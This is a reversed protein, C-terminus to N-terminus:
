FFPVVEVKRGAEVAIDEGKAWTQDNLLLKFVVKGSAQATSWVWKTPEICKLPVGQFWSLGDGQGRIFVQNGVGVDIRAEVMTPPEAPWRNQSHAPEGSAPKRRATERLSGSMPRALSTAKASVPRNMKMQTQKTMHTTNEKANMILKPNLNTKAASALLAPPFESDGAEARVVVKANAFHHYISFDKARVEDLFALARDSNDSWCGGRSLYLGTETDQLLIKM